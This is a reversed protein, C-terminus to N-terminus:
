ESNTIAEVKPAAEASPQPEAVPPNLGHELLDAVDQQVKELQNLQLNPDIITFL